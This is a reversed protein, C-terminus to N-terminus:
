DQRGMNGGIHKINMDGSNVGSQPLGASNAGIGMKEMPVRQMMPDEARCDNLYPGPFRTAM